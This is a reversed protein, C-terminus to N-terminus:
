LHWNSEYAYENMEIALTTKKYIALVIASINLYSYMLMYKPMGPLPLLRLTKELQIYFFQKQISPYSGIDAHRCKSVTNCINGHM